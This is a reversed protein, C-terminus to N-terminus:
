MLLRHELTFGTHEQFAKDITQELLGRDDPHTRALMAALNPTAQGPEYRYIRFTERSWYQESRPDRWGISGTRSLQEGEGLYAESRQLADMVSQNRLVLLTSMAIGTVGIARDFLPWHAWPDGPSTVHALLTLAECGVGVLLIGTRGYAVSAVLV